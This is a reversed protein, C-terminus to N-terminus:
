TQKEFINITVGIDATPENESYIKVSGASSDTHPLIVATEVTDIDANDPIVDVISNATINANNLDYEYLTGVLSWGTSLLTLGTVQIPPRGGGSASIKLKNEDAGTGEEVTINTGSIIKDALYGAILDGDDFKVKEDTNTPISPKNKIFDDAGSDAQNWDSQVNEEGVADIFELGSEDTKVAIIKGGEGDYSSPTDLLRLFTSFYYKVNGWLM